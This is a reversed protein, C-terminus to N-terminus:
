GDGVCCRTQGYRTTGSNCAGLASVLMLSALIIALWKKTKKM